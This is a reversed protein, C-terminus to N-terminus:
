TIYVTTQVPYLVSSKSYIWNSIETYKLVIITFIPLETVQLCGQFFYFLLQFWVLLINQSREIRIINETYANYKPLGHDKILEVNELLLNYCNEEIEKWKLMECLTRNLLGFAHWHQGGTWHSWCRQTSPLCSLSDRAWTYVSWWPCVQLTGVTASSCRRTHRWEFRWYSWRLSSATTKLKFNIGLWNWQERKLTLLYEIVPDNNFSVLFKALFHDTHFTDGISRQVVNRM